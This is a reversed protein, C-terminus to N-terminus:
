RSGHALDGELADAAFQQGSRIAQDVRDAQGLAIYIQDLMLKIQQALDPRQSFRPRLTELRQKAEEYKRQSLWLRAEALNRLDGDIKANSMRKFTLEAGEIDNKQLKRDFDLQLLRGSSPFKALGSELRKSAEDSDKRAEASLASLFYFRDDKPYLEIGKAVYQEAAAFDQSQFTLEIAQLLVDADDPALARAKEIAVKANDRDQKDKLFQAQALYAKASQPNAAVMQDIVRDALELRGPFRADSMKDRLLTALQYYAKFEKPAKANKLDFTKAKSDYGIQSELLQIAGNYDATNIMCMALQLDSEADNQKKATLKLLHDKAAAFRGALLDLKILRRRLAAERDPPLPNTLVQELAQVATEFDRARIGPRELVDAAAEAYDAFVEVDDPKYSRYLAYLRVATRPDDTKAIEARKLLSDVNSRMQIAHVVVVGTTLVVLIVAIIALLRVNLRTM